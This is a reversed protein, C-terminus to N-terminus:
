TANALALDQSAKATIVFARHIPPGDILDAPVAIMEHEAPSHATLNRVFEDGAELPVVRAIYLWDRKTIEGSADLIEIIHAIGDRDAKIWPAVVVLDWEGLANTREILAFLTFSWKASVKTEAARFTEPLNM